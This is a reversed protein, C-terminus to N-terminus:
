ESRLNTEQVWEMHRGSFRICPMRCSLLNCRDKAGQGEARACCDRAPGNRALDQRICACLDLEKINM